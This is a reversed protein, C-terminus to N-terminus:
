KSAHCFSCNTQPPHKMPRVATGTNAHCNLCEQVKPTPQHIQDRPMPPAARNSSTVLSLISLLALIGCTLLMLHKKATKQKEPDMAVFYFFGPPNDLTTAPQGL